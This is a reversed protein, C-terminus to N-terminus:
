TVGSKQPESSFAHGTRERFVDSLTPRAISVSDITDGFLERVRAVTETGDDAILRLADGQTEVGLGLTQTILDAREVIGRGYLTVIEGSIQGCLVSPSDLAVIRGEDLIAIRDCASGEELLHTTALVTMGTRARLDQVLKWFEDRARPDLGVTPEDLMLVSPQPMLAKALEIRRRLGGSLKEVLDGSRDRLGIGGLSEDIRRQLDAGSMGYLHGHHMMNERVTLKVDLAPAQFAVGIHRRVADRDSVVDHGCVSAHGSTPTLLTALIRFTTSKGGGNPGLIGFFQGEEVEFRIGKLAPRGEYEHVLNSVVVAPRHVSQSM